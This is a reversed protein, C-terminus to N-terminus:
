QTSQKTQEQNNRYQQQTQHIAAITLACKIATQHVPPWAPNARKKAASQTIRTKKVLIQGICMYLSELFTHHGCRVLLFIFFILLVATHLSM